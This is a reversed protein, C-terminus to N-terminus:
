TVLSMEWGGPIWILNQLEKLSPPNEQVTESKLVGKNDGLSRKQDAPHICLVRTHLATRPLACGCYCSGPDMHLMGSGRTGQCGTNSRLSQLEPM